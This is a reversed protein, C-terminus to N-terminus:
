VPEGGKKKSLIFREVLKFAEEFERLKGNVDVLVAYIASVVNVYDTQRVAEKVIANVIEELYTM